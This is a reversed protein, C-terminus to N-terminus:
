QREKQNIFNNNKIEQLEKKVGPILDYNDLEDLIIWAYDTFDEKQINVEGDKAECLFRPIVVHYGDPRTFESDGIFKFIGTTELDTEEKIERELTKLISCGKEVKGGPVTWMCPQAIEKESRKLILFKGDKRYLFGTVAVIHLQDNSVV